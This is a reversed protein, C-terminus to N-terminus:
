LRFSFGFFIFRILAAVTLVFAATLILFTRRMSFASILTLIVTAILLVTAFTLLNSEFFVVYWALSLLYAAGLIVSNKIGRSKERLVCSCQDSLIGMSILFGFLAYIAIWSIFLSAVSPTYGGTHAARALYLTPNGSVWLIVGGLTTVFSSLVIFKYNEAIFCLERKIKCSKKHPRNHM